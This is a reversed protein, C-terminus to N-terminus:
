RDSSPVPDDQVPHNLEYGKKRVSLLVIPDGDKKGPININFSGTTDSIVPNVMGQAQIVVGPLLVGPAGPRGITKVVGQQTQAFTSIVSFLLTLSLLLRKKM